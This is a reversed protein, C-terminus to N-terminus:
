SHPLKADQRIKVVICDLYVIPYVADLPRNQWVVIDPLIADTVRSIVSDSVEVGYIDRITDSIEATSQGKAYFYLIQEDIGTIRTQNKKVPQPEFSSDRDRPTDIQIDGLETGVTKSM